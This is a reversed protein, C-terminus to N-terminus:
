PRLDPAMTAVRVVMSRHAADRSFTVLLEDKKVRVTSVSNKLDRLLVGSGQWDIEIRELGDAASIVELLPRRTM